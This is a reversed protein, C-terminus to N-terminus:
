RRWGGAGLGKCYHLAVGRVKAPPEIVVDGGAVGPELACALHEVGTAAPSMGEAAGDAMAPSQGEMISVAALPVRLPCVTHPACGPWAVRGRRWRLKGRRYRCALRGRTCELELLLALYLKVSQYFCRPLCEHVAEWAFRAGFNLPAWGSGTKQPLHKGATRIRSHARPPTAGGRQVLALLAAQCCQLRARPRHHRDAPLRMALRRCCHIASARCPARRGVRAWPAFRRLIQTTHPTAAAQVAESTALSASRRRM